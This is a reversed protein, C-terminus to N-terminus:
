HPIVLASNRAAMQASEGDRVVLRVLYAGPKLDFNSKVTFGSHTLRELTPDLLRMKLIKEGGTVFNGNEDFIATALTLDDRSRGEAKRFHLGKVDVHTLVTLRAKAPDLKFFQTRLDIPLDYTEQQSFIAEEIEQMAAAAPDAIAPPAFYGKRAQITAGPNDPLSVTLAHYRGDAKLNQPSFGILYSLPPAIVARRLLGGLDNSNHLFTGGTGGALEDLIGSQASQEAARLTSKIGASVPTDHVLISVDGAVKPTYLGRADITNIVIGVRNARDVLDGGGQTRVTLIFGPSVFVLLRQGPMTSLRDTVDALRRLVYATQSDDATVMGQSTSKVLSTAAAAFTPDGRFACNITDQIAVDLAQADQYNVIQDAQYNSIPPCGQVGASSELPRPRIYALSRHLAEIDATFEQAFQSSTTYIGVRDSMALSDFLRSVADRVPLADDNSLNADDVVVAVFRHPLTASTSAAAANVDGVMAKEPLVSVYSDPTQVAFTSIPQPKRNDFLQFDEKKLSPVVNGAGDRVVVRVLVLNVRVKFTASTDQSSVEVESSAANTSSAPTPAPTGPSAQASDARPAIKPDPPAQGRAPATFFPLGVPFLLLLAFQIARALLSRRM